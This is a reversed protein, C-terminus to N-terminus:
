RILPSRDAVHGDPRVLIWQGQKLELQEAVTTSGEMSIDDVSIIKIPLGFTELKDGKLVGSALLTYGKYDITDLLSISESGSNIWMHPLRAGPTTTPEYNAVSSVDAFKSAGSVAVGKDYVYGLELGPMFFHDSQNDIATQVQQRKSIGKETSDNALSLARYVPSLMLGKITNQIYKPLCKMIGSNMIRPVIAAKSPDLGISQLVEDMKFHNSLSIDCNKQCVAKRELEYSDLLSEDAGNKHAAIKWVLNHADAVGSNLGLGGTPPFRHASDGILFVNDHSFKEAVQASMNWVGKFFCEFSVDPGFLEKLWKDCRQNDYDDISEFATHIPRMVVTLKKPDHVICVAPNEPDLVWFLLSDKEKSVQTMDVRCSLNLFTAATEPGNKKINLAKAIRSGAGDAALVYQSEIHYVEDCDSSVESLHTNGDIFRKWTWGSRITCEAPALEQAKKKLIEEILPQSINSV